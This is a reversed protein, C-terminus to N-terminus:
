LSKRLEKLLEGTREVDHQLDQETTDPAYRITSCKNLLQRIEKVMGADVAQEQLQAVYDRDELGAEALGLRDGIFGTIARHLSGYAEKIHKEHAQELAKDLEEGAKDFARQSRAFRSDSAMRDRYTKQWYGVGLVIAPLLLGVWFWWRDVLPAGAAARTWSALGTVPEISFSESQPTSAVANPNHEVHLTLPPLDKVVYRRQDPNYYALKAAPITFTGTNRPIVVDTFTKSGKIQTGDRDVNSKEQPDYIEFSDPLKYEPKSILPVNGTGSIKTQIEVTEGVYAKQSVLSRSINFSGVAGTFTANSIGPLAKVNITVPDTELQINRQNTGFGGFFSSFPDGNRKSVSRVSVAVQYPSLTLKGTKTPFLAYQLLTARRYRVGDIIVSEARPRQNKDLEEKWFGEAKWGPIPQYSNVELDSKFYIQVEAILQQGNVPTKDSVDMKVYIDPRSGGGGSQTAAKNRDQIHVDLPKTQYETGDIDVKIPSITFSGEKRATLYYTYTYSTSSVGNVFSFSRSTSPTRSVLQFGEFDPLEPREINNFDKGSIEISLAIREGTFVQTESVTAEVKVSQAEAQLVLGFIMIVFLVCLKGIKVM